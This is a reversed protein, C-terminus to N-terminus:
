NLLTIMSAVAAADNALDERDINYQYFPAKLDWDGPTIEGREFTYNGYGEFYPPVVKAFTRYVNSPEGITFVKKPAAPDSILNVQMSHNEEPRGKIYDIYPRLGTHAGWCDAYILIRVTNRPKIKLSKFANLVEFAAVCAADSNHTALSDSWTDAAATVLVVSKKNRGPIEMMIDRGKGGPVDFFTVNNGAGCRNAMMTFYDIIDSAGEGGAPRLPCVKNIKLMADAATTDTAFFGYIAEIREKESKGCGTLSLALLAACLTLISIRKM